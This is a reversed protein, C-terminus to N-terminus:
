SVIIWGAGCPFIARPSAVLHAIGLGCVTSSVSRSPTSNESPAANLAAATLVAQSRKSAEDTGVMGASILAIVLMSATFSVVSRMRSLLGIAFTKTLSVSSFEKQSATGDGAAAAAPM